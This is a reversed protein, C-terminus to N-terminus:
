RNDFQSQNDRIANAILPDDKLALVEPPFSIAAAMDRQATLRAQLASAISFQQQYGRDNAEGRTPDLRILTDGQQVVDGDHVLIERVIGGELHQITKRNSEVAITGDAVVASDLRAVASWGGLGVFTFVIIAAGIKLMIRWDCSATPATMMDIRETDM